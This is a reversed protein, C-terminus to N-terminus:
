YITFFLKVFYGFISTAINYQVDFNLIGEFEEIGACYKM